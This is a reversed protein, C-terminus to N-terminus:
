SPEEAAVNPAERIITDGGASVVHRNAWAPGCLLALVAALRV